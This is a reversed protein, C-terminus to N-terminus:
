TLEVFGRFLKYLKGFNWPLNEKMKYILEALLELLSSGRIDTPPKQGNEIKTDKISGSPRCFLPKQLNELEDLRAFGEHKLDIKEKLLQKRLERLGSSFYKLLELLRQYTVVSEIESEIEWSNKIKILCKTVSIMNKTAAVFFTINKPLKAPSPFQWYTEFNDFDGGHTSPSVMNSTIAHIVM